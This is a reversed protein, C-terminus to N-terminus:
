RISKRMYLSLVIYHIAGFFSAVLLAIGIDNYHKLFYFSSVQFCFLSINFILLIKQKGLIDGITSLPSYVNKFLIFVSFYKLLGGAEKWNEGLISFIEKGFFSVILLGPLLTFLVRRQILKTLDLLEKKNSYFLTSAKQFYVQSVSNTIFSIPIAILKEALFYLGAAKIGFFFVILMTMGLNSLSNFLNSITSYKLFNIYLYFNKKISEKSIVSFRLVKLIDLFNFISTIILSIINGIILGSSISKIGLILSSLSNSSSKLLNHEAITTYKRERNLFILISQNLAFLLISFSIIWYHTKFLNLQTIQFLFDKLFFLLFFTIFSFCIAIILCLALLNISDKKKKPLMIAMDYKGSAIVGLITYLSVYLGYTGFEEPSFYQTLIPTIIIPILQAISIGTILKMVNKSFDSIKIKKERKRTVKLYFGFIIPVALWHLCIFFSSPILAYFWPDIKSGLYSFLLISLSDEIIEWVIFIILLPLGYELLKKKLNKIKWFSVKHTLNHKIYKYLRKM